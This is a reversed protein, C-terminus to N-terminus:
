FFFAICHQISFFLKEPENLKMERFFFDHVSLFIHRYSLSICVNTIITEFYRQTLANAANIDAVHM